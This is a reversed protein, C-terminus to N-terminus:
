NFWWKKKRIPKPAPAKVPKGALIARPRHIVMAEAEERSGLSRAAADVAPSLIPPRNDFSHADTAIVHVQRQELLTHACDMADEGLLGTISMATIQILCGMDVFYQLRDPHNQFVPNREPHALIPTIDNLKMQFIEEQSGPPIVHLPFEVLVYRGTDNVTAVEKAMVKQALGTCIHVESGVCVEIDIRNEALARRLRAVSDRVRQLPNHFVENLTHPAAVLTQIGDAAAQRAMALSEDMDAPGDDVGPLIHCHLDIM